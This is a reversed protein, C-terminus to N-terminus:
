LNINAKLNKLHNLIIYKKSEIFENENIGKNKIYFGTLEDEIEYYLRDGIITKLRFTNLAVQKPLCSKIDKKAEEKEKIKRFTLLLTEEAIENLESDSILLYKLNIGEETSYRFIFNFLSVTTEGMGTLIDIFESKERKLVEALVMSIIYSKGSRIDGVLIYKEKNEKLNNEEQYGFVKSIMLVENKFESFYKTESLKKYSDMDEKSKIANALVNLFTVQEENTKFAINEAIRRKGRVNNHYTTVTRKGKDTIISGFYKKDAM